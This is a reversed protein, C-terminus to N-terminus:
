VLSPSAFLVRVYVQKVSEYEPWLVLPTQLALDPPRFLYFGSLQFNQRSPQVLPDFKVMLSFFSSTYYRYYRSLIDCHTIYSIDIQRYVPYINCENKPRIIM